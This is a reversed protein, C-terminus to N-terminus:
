FLALSSTRSHSRMEGGGSKVVRWSSGDSSVEVREQEAVVVGGRVRAHTFRGEKVSKGGWLVEEGTVEVVEGGAALGAELVGVGRFQM